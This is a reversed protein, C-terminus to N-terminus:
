ASQSDQMEAPADIALRVLMEETIDILEGIGMLSFLEKELQQAKHPAYDSIYHLEKTISNFSPNGYRSLNIRLAFFDSKNKAAEVFTRAQEPETSDLLFLCDVQILQGQYDRMASLLCETYCGPQGEQLVRLPRLLLQNFREGRLLPTLNVSITEPSNTQQHLQQLFPIIGNDENSSAVHSLLVRKDDRSVYAVPHPLTPVLLNRLGEIYEPLRAQEVAQKLKNANIKLLNKMFPVVSPHVTDGHIRLSLLTQSQNMAMVRYPIDELKAKSDLQQLKTLSVLILDGEAVPLPKQLQIQLGKGSLNVTSGKTARQTIRATLPSRYMYRAESRQHGFEFSEELLSIQHDPLQFSKLANADKPSKSYLSRYGQTGMRSTIDFLFVVGKLQSLQERTQRDLVRHIGLDKQISDPLALPRNLDNQSLAHITLSFVRWSDRHAGLNFFLHKLDAQELEQQSAVYYNLKGGSLHSFAFLLTNQGKKANASLERLRSVSLMDALRLNGDLGRWYSFLEQNADTRLTRIPKLGKETQGILIPLGSLQRFYADEFGRAQVSEVASDTDITLRQRQQEFYREIRETLLANTDTRSLRVWQYINSKKHIAILEYEGQWHQSVHDNGQRMFSLDIQIASKLPLHLNAPLRLKLGHVSFDSISADVRQAGPLYADVRASLILRESKRQIHHGLKLLPVSYMSASVDPNKDSLESTSSLLPSEKAAVKLQKEKAIVAEYVGMSYHGFISLQQEFVQKTHFDLYHTVKNATVAECRDGARPRSDIVRICPEALRKLEMKLLFQIQKPESKTFRALLDDFEPDKILPKLQEILPRYIEIDM